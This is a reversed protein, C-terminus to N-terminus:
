IVAGRVFGGSGVSADVWRVLVSRGCGFSM